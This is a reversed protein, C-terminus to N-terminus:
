KLLEIESPIMVPSPDAPNVLDNVQSHVADKVRNAKWTIYGHTVRDSSKGADTRYPEKWVKTLEVIRGM